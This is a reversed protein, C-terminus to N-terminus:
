LPAPHNVIGKGKLMFLRSLKCTRGPVAKPERNTQTTKNREEESSYFLLKLVYISLGATRYSGNM